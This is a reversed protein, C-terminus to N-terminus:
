CLGPQNFKASDCLSIYIHIVFNQTQTHTQFTTLRFKTSEVINLLGGWSSHIHCLVSNLTPKESGTPEVSFIGKSDAYAPEPDVVEGSSVKGKPLAEDPNERGFCLTRCFDYVTLSQEVRSAAQSSTSDKLAVSLSGAFCRSFNIKCQDSFKYQRFLYALEFGFFEFCCSRHNFQGISLCYQNILWDCVFLIHAHFFM